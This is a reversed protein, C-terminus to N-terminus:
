PQAASLHRLVDTRTLVVQPRGGVLVVIAPARELREVAMAIPQGIGITPLPAGMVKEVPEDM